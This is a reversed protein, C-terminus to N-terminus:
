QGQHRIPNQGAILDLPDPSPDDPSPVDVTASLSGRPPELFCPGLKLAHPPGVIYRAQGPGFKLGCYLFPPHGSDRGSLWDQQASALAEYYALKQPAMGQLHPVNAAGAALRQRCADREAQSMWAAGQNACGFPSRRLAAALAQAGPAPPPGEGLPAARQAPPSTVAAIPARAIAAASPPRASQAPASFRTPSRPVLWPVVSVDAPRPGSEAPLSLRYRGPAALLCLLVVNVALALAASLARRSRAGSLSPRGDV